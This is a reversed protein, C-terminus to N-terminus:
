FAKERIWDCAKDYNWNNSILAIKADNLSVGIERRMKKIMAKQTDALIFIDFMRLPIVYTNNCNNCCRADKQKVYPYPNNGYGEFDKHCICCNFKM